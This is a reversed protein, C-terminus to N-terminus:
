DTRGVRTIMRIVKNKPIPEAQNHLYLKKPFSIFKQLQKVENITPYMNTVPCKAEISPLSIKKELPM